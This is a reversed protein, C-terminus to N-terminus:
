DKRMPPKYDGLPGHYRSLNQTKDKFQIADKPCNHLCRMCNSCNQSFIIKDDVLSINNMPCFRVCVGCKICKEDAALGKAFSKTGMNTFMWYIPHMMSFSKTKAKRNEDLIEPIYKKVQESIKDTLGNSKIKKSAPYNSTAKILFAGKVDFGKKKLKKGIIRESKGSAGGASTFVFAKGNNAKNNKLFNEIFSNFPKPPGFAYIPYGFGYLDYEGSFDNSIFDIPKLVTEYGNADFNNKFERATYETNGTGSFYYIIAKKM